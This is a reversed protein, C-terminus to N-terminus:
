NRKANNITTAIDLRAYGVTWKYGWYYTVTLPVYIHFAGITAGNNKYVLEKNTGTGSKTLDLNANAVTGLAKIKEEYKEKSPENPDYGIRDAAALAADTFANEVDVDVDIGYYTWYDTSWLGRWDTPTQFLATVSIRSGNDQADEGSMSVVNPVLNVPRLIRATFSGADAKHCEEITTTVGIYAKFTEGEALEKHGYANIIDYIARNQGDSNKTVINVQANHTGSLIAFAHNETNVGNGKVEGKTTATLSKGDNAVKIEYKTGSAGTVIWPNEETTGPKVIFKYEWNSVTKGDFEKNLNFKPTKSQFSEDLNYTIEATHGDGPVQTNIHIETLQDITADTQGGNEKYWRAAVKSDTAITAIPKVIAGAPITLQIFSNLSQGNTLRVYTNYAHVNKGEANVTITDTFAKDLSWMISDRDGGTYPVIASNLKDDLSTTVSGVTETIEEFSGDENFKYQKLTNDSNKEFDVTKIYQSPEMDNKKALDTIPGDLYLDGFQVGDCTIPEAKQYPVGSVPYAFKSIQFKIYGHKLVKGDKNKLLVRVIPQHGAAVDKLEENVSLIGKDLTAYDGETHKFNNRQNKVLAFEYSLGLSKFIEAPMVHQIENNDEITVYHTEVCANLDFTEQGEIGIIHSYANPTGTLEKITQNEGQGYLDQNKNLTELTAQKDNELSNDALILKTYETSHLLAYDSTVTRAETKGDEGEADKSAQLAIMPTKGAALTQQYAEKNLVFPVSILGDKVGFDAEQAEEYTKYVATVYEIGARTVRPDNGYFEFSYGTLDANIPNVHYTAVGHNTQTVKEEALEWAEDVTLGNADNALKYTPVNSLAPIEVSEIGGFFYAPKLVLSTLSRAVLIKLNALNPSMASIDNYAKQLSEKLNQISTKNGEVDDVLSELKAQLDKSKQNLSDVRGDLKTYTQDTYQNVQETLQNMTEKFTGSGTGESFFKIADLQTQLSSIIVKMASISDGLETRINGEVKNLKGLQDDVGGKWSTYAALAKNYAEKFEEFDATDVKTDVTKKLAELAEKITDLQAQLNAIKGAKDNELDAVREALATVTSADAKTNIANQLQQRAAACKSECEATASSIQTQLDSKAKELATELSSVNQKLSNIQETNANIDDDYDKCSTVTGTAGVALLGLLMYSFFKKKKM